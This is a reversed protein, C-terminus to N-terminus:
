ADRNVLPVYRVGMLKTISFHSLDIQQEDSSIVDGNECDGRERVVQVLVQDGGDPGVPIIMKGGVKLQSMLDPPLEAAAAGVHIADYPANQPYGKWGNCADPIHLRDMLDSDEKLVNARAMSVLDPVVDIGTCIATPNLRAFAASLYGSGIGVDLISANERLAETELLGLAYAHMHPASITQGKVLSQPSDDYPNSDIYNKRDISTLARFVEPSKIIGNSKLNTVLELNSLGSSRWAM